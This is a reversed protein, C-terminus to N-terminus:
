AWSYTVPYRRDKGFCRSTVRPGLPAQRRKYESNDVFRVVQRVLTEAFGAAILANPSQNQEIYCRLLADLIPYPPLSDQDCQNPALEATPLRELVALPIVSSLQNRYHALQYVRTKLVDKLVAFAGAMDGYLTMYGVALESKNGTTLLLANQENALAMLLTGRCRAQINQQTVSGTKDHAIYPQLQQTFAQMVPTIPLELLNVSLTAAQQRAVQGSLASTYPSPLFLPQVQESGLADVAIALTLASDIGGSLGLLVRRFGNKTVYDRLALVLAQYCQATLSLARSAPPGATFQQEQFCLTAIQEKFQCFRYCCEGQATYVLSQGDFLLEDQGGVQNVYIIPRASQRAQRALLRRRQRPKYRDYPSAHISVILEAGAATLAELPAEEWLDECILLGLRYGKFDILGNNSGPTFYRLEDFVGCNPLCQKYYRILCEGKWFLSVANFLRGEVLWPHGVLLAVQQTAAALQQLQQQCRRHFDDCFLLDEPPYGTLALESFLLLDVTSPQQQMVALMRAANSEIAGVYWNLQAVTITLRRM